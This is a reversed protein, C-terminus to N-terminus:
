LSGTLQEVIVDGRRWDHRPPSFRRVTPPRRAALHQECPPWQLRRPISRQISRSVGSLFSSTMMLSVETSRSWTECCQRRPWGHPSSLESIRLAACSVKKKLLIFWIALFRSMKIINNVPLTATPNTTIAPTVNVSRLQNSPRACKVHM